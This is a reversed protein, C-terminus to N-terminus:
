TPALTLAATGSSITVGTGVALDGTASFTLPGNASIVNANINLAVDAGSATLNIAGNGSSSVSGSVTLSGTNAITVNGNFAQTGSVTLAARNTLSVNGFFDTAAFNAVANGANNLTIGTNAEALLNAVTIAASQTIAGTGSTLQLTGTGSIANAVNISSSLDYSLFGNDIVTGTGLSGTTGGQGIQLGAASITTVGGNTNNGLLTLTQSSGNVTLATNAGTISGSFTGGGTVTLTAPTSSSNTVTGSGSLAGISISNGNLDLIGNDTVSSASTLATTSAVKLTDSSNITTTGGYTNNGSLTLTQSGGDVTLATSAGTITGSFVGGGTVTLTAPTVASSTANVRLLTTDKSANTSSTGPYSAGNLTPGNPSALVYTNVNGPPNSIDYYSNANSGSNDEEFPFVTNPVDDIFLVATFVQGVTLTQPVAFPVTILQGAASNLAVTNVSGPVLTLGMAPSGTYLAATIFPSPLTSANLASSNVFSISTLQTAGATATFVNGVWNDEAETTLSNNFGGVPTGNDIRYVTTPSNAVTGSGNLTGISNSFGGLNLTGSDSVSSTASFATASGAQLTDGSNITTTGTYTNNGTLTLLGIGAQTLSGIGSISNAVTVSISRNFVLAANDTVNGSGLSGTAGSGIQLTGGNITTIGSYTNAGTLIETGTGNKVLSFPGSGDQIVGSFTATGNNSGVTLTTPSVAVNTITGSGSLGDIAM